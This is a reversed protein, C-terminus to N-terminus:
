HRRDPGPHYQSALFWGYWQVVRNLDVALMLDRASEIREIPPEVFQPRAITLVLLTWALPALIWQLVNRRAVAGGRAPELGTARVVGQFFPIRLSAKREKYSPLLWWVLLPLPLLALLWPYDLEFM